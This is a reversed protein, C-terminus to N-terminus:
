SWSDFYDPIGRSQRAKEEFILMGTANSKKAEYMSLDSERISRELSAGKQFESIGISISVQYTEGDIAFPEVFSDAIRDAVLIINGNEKSIEAFAIFEDGGYRCLIDTSRLCAKLRRATEKLIADGIKHGRSDNFHKFQDVDFFLIFIRSNEGIELGRDILANLYFRNYVGTLPDITIATNLYDHKKQIDFLNRIVVVSFFILMIFIGYPLIQYTSHGYLDHFSVPLIGLSALLIFFSGPKKKKLGQILLYLVCPVAAVILWSYIPLLNAYFENPTFVAILLIAAIFSQFFWKISEMKRVYDLHYFFLAFLPLLLYGTLFEARAVTDWQIGPFIQYVQRYNTLLVRMAILIAILSFYFLYKHTQNINYLGLFFLGMVLIGSFLFMENREIGSVYGSFMETEGIVPPNLFGGLYYSFNSIEILLEARGQEDACFAGTLEKMEPRHGEKQYSVVGNKLIERGNVTLRYASGEDLIQVAYGARPALNTLVLRYTATGYPNGGMNELRDFSHPVSIYEPEKSRDLDQIMADRYLQWQGDLLVPSGLDFSSFDVAGKVADAAQIRANGNAMIWIILALAVAMFIWILYHIAKKM